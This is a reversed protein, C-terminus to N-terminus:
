HQSQAAFNKMRIRCNNVAATQECRPNLCPVSHETNMMALIGAQVVKHMFHLTLQKLNRSKELNPDANMDIM